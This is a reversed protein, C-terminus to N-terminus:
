NYLSFIDAIRLFHCSEHGGQSRRRCIHGVAFANQQFVDDRDNDGDVGVNRSNGCSTISKGNTTAMLVM